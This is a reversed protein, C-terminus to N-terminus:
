GTAPVIIVEMRLRRATCLGAFGGRMPRAGAQRKEGFRSRFRHFIEDVYAQSGLVLGDTFYRVRCRLLEDLTLEGGSRLVQEVKAPDFGKRIPTGEPTLGRARGSMYLFQRYDRAVQRWTRTGDAFVGALAKRAREEGGMAEGYGSFRYDKPDAVIGARVANLDIYAAVSALSGPQGQVLVSKFREEWLTGKRGHRRNYSQTIRQKLTKAFESLDYMRYTFEVRLAEAAENQGDARREKLEDALNSVLTSDYLYALRALFEEDPLDRRAPVHILLHFHNDLIAYTLITVGCFAEVRRLVKRFREKENIDFIMRRDVVRSVM